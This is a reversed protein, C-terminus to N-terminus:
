QVFSCFLFLFLFLCLVLFVFNIGREGRGCCPCAEGEARDGRGRRGAAATGERCPVHGPVHLAIGPAKSGATYMAGCAPASPAGGHRPRPCRDITASDRTAVSRSGANVRARGGRRRRCIRHPTRTFQSIARRHRARGSCGGGGVGVVIRRCVTCRKTRDVSQMYRKEGKARQRKNRRSRAVSFTHRHHLSARGVGAGAPAHIGGFSKRRRRHIM